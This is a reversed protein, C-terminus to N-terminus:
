TPDRAIATRNGSGDLTAAVRDKTDGFDRFTKNGNSSKGFMVSGGLRLWQRFTLGSEVGDTRDLIADAVANGGAASASVINADVTATSATVRVDLIGSNNVLATPMLPNAVIEFISTSDPSTLFQSGQAPPGAVYVTAVKTSGVYSIIQATQGVGTGGVVNIISGKYFDNTASAGADLTITSAAGAQATGRRIVVLPDPSLSAPGGFTRINIQQDKVAKTAADVVTVAIRSAQAETASFAFQWTAGNGMTLAAPLTTINAAAGGDKSIKVDGAAPTWDAGVAFDDSSVKIMPVEITFAVGWQRVFEM